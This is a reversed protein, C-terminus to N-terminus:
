SKLYHGFPILDKQVDDHEYKSTFLEAELYQTDLCFKDLEKIKIVCRQKLDVILKNIPTSNFRDIDIKISLDAENAVNM